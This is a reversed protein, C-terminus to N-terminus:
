VTFLTILSFAMLFNLVIRARESLKKELTVALPWLFLSGLVFIAKVSYDILDCAGVAGCTKNFLAYTPFLYPLISYAIGALFALGLGLSAFIGLCRIVIGTKKLM